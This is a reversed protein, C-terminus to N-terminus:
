QGLSILADISEKWKEPNEVAWAMADEGDEVNYHVCLLKSFVSKGNFSTPMSVGKMAKISITYEKFPVARIFLLKEKTLVIAGNGRLQKGGKSKEGFFNARTTAGIIENKDFRKLIYKDLKNRTSKFVFGLFVILCLVGATVSVAIIMPSEM